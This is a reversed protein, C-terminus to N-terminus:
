CIHRRECLTGLGQPTLTSILCNDTGFVAFVLLFISFVTPIPNLHLQEQEQIRAM